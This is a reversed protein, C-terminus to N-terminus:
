SIESLPQVTDASPTGQKSTLAEKEQDELRLITLLQSNLLYARHSEESVIAIFLDHTM